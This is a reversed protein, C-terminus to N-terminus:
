RRVPNVFAGDGAEDWVAFRMWKWDGAEVPWDYDAEGFAATKELSIVRRQTAAGDGWVVEAMKLPFTWRVHARVRSAGGVKAPPAISYDPLLVEGTTVFYDGERLVDAVSAYNEFSPVTKMRAYNVNMHAYLEHTEDIKFVDVEGLLRKPLGWNNMDDLLKFPREGLRPSSLDSPMQKWGAGIYGADLFQESNRIEDPFGTSGKTRPHTQWMLGQERHVMELMDAVSGISYVNGRRPDNAVVPRGEPRRHYWYVPHPFFLAWHGGLYVNAEESPLILFDADSQGRCARFLADMEELRVDGTDNPHGDGHFDMIIVINVGMQKLAPKFFATKDFGEKMAWAAYGFHWHTALTKYGALAPFRDQYTYRLVEDLRENAGATDNGAGLLLFMAMRQEAGPPANMWPYYRTGDDPWQRIGMELFGPGARRWLYGLNTTIDRAFFYQHPPPFVALSAGPWEAALARYRVKLAAYDTGAPGSELRGDTDYWALRPATAARPVDTRLGADYFYAVDPASTHAVAEQRILRSGPFFTYAIGGSFLGMELGDFAVEVRDGVTRVRAGALRFKAPGGQIEQPRHGPHDFFADWGGHRKGTTVAYIPRANELIRAGGSAIERILAAQPDLSFVARWPRSSEDKWEVVLTAGHQSARILTEGPRYGSLDVSVAALAAAHTVLLCLLLRM